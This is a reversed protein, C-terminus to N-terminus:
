RLLILPTPLLCGVAFAILTVWLARWFNLLALGCIGLIILAVCAIIYCVFLLRLTKYKKARKISAPTPGDVQDQDSDSELAPFTPPQPHPLFISLPFVILSVWLSDIGYVTCNYLGVVILAISILLQVILLPLKDKGDIIDM